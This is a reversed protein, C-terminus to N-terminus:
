RTPMVPVIASPGSAPPRAPVALLLPIAADSSAVTARPSAPARARAFVTAGLAGLGAGLAAAPVEILRAGAAAGNATVSRGTAQGDRQSGDM